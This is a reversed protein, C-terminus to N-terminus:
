GTKTLAATDVDVTLSNITKFLHIGIDIMSICCSIESGRRSIIRLLRPEFDSKSIFDLIM